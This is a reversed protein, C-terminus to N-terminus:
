GLRFPLTQTSTMRIRACWTMIVDNEQRRRKAMPVRFIRFIKGTLLPTHVKDQL